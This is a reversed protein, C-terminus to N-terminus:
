SRRKQAETGYWLIPLTGIGVTGGLTMSFSSLRGINEAIIASTVKDMGLDGYKEPIDASMLGLEGAKRLLERTVSFNKAEIERAPHLVENEIFRQTTKAIQRHEVSSTRRRSFGKRTVTKSSFVAVRFEGPWRGLM